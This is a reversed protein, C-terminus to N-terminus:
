PATKEYADLLPLVERCYHDGAESMDRVRQGLQAKQLRDIYYDAVKLAEYLRQIQIDKELM